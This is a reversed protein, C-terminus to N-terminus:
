FGGAVGSAFAASSTDAPAFKSATTPSAGNVATDQKTAKQVFAGMEAVFRYLAPHDRYAEDRLAERTEASVVSLAAEVRPGSTADKANEARWQTQAEAINASIRTKTTERFKDLLVQGAKADVKHEGLLDVYAKLDDAHMGDAKIDYVPAAPAEAKKEGLLSGDAPKDAPKAAAPKAAEPEAKAPAVPEKATVPAAAELGFGGATDTMNTDATSTEPIDITTM